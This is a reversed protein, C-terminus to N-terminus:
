MGGMRHLKHRRLAPIIENQLQQGVSEVVTCRDEQAYDSLVIANDAVRSTRLTLIGSDSKLELPKPVPIDTHECLYRLVSYENELRARSDAPLSIIRGDM